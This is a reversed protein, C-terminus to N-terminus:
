GIYIPIIFDQCQVARKFIKGAYQLNIRQMGADEAAAAASTILSEGLLSHFVLSVLIVLNM